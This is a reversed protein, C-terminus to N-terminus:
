LHWQPIIVLLYFDGILVHAIPHCHLLGAYYLPLLYSVLLNRFDIKSLTIKSTDPIIWYACESWAFINSVRNVEVNKGTAFSWNQWERWDKQFISRSDAVVEKDKSSETSYFSSTFSTCSNLHQFISDRYTQAKGAVWGSIGKEWQLELARSFRPFWPHPLIIVSRWFIAWHQVKFPFKVMRMKENMM